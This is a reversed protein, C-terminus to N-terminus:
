PKFEGGPDEDQVEPYWELDVIRDWTYERDAISRALKPDPLEGTQSLRRFEGDIISPLREPLRARLTPTLDADLETRLAAIEGRWHNRAERALSFQLKLLHRVINAIQSRCAREVIKALGDVEEALNDYDLRNVSRTRVAEAQEEAWAVYDTEYLDSRDLTDLPTM